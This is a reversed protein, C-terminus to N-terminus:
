PNSKFTVKRYINELLIECGQITIKDRPNKSIKMLWNNEKTKNYNQIYQKKSDVL